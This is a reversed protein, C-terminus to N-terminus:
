KGGAFTAACRDIATFLEYIDEERVCSFAVRLDHKATAITGIGEEDLLKLRLTEAEIRDSLQILMFYGSNFPYATFHQSPHESLYAKIKQARGRLIERNSDAQKGAEDSHLLKLSINQASQSVNSISGRILGAAKKELVELSEPKLGKGAFSIFGVRLGWAFYEKTMGDVKVALLKESAKATLNYLSHPYIDEDFSLGFYADDHLVSLGKESAEAAEVLVKSIAKAEDNLPSYGTPNNPFNLLVHIRQGSSSMKKLKEEFAQIDFKENKFFSFNEIKAQHKVSFLLRYNGWIQDPLLLIDGPSVFLEAYLSLAHTLGNTVIPLSTESLDHNISLIREQWTKRLDADGYSSAYPSIEKPSLENYFGHLADFSLPNGQGDTAIGITANFKHAKKKAEASQSLIGKPFFAKKGLESLADFLRPNHAKLSQNLEEALPPIKM